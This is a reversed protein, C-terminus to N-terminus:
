ETVILTIIGTVDNVDHIGNGDIDGAASNFPSPNQGLIKSILATVDSVDLNGDM